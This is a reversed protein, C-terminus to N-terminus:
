DGFTENSVDLGLRWHDCSINFSHWSYSYDGKLESQLLV